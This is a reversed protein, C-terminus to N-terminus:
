NEYDDFTEPDQETVTCAPLIEPPLPQNGFPQFPLATCFSRKVSTPQGNTLPIIKGAIFDLKM